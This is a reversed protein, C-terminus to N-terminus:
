HVPPRMGRSPQMSLCRCVCWSACSAWVLCHTFRVVAPDSALYGPGLISGFQEGDNWFRQPARGVLGTVAHMALAFGEGDAAFLRDPCLEDASSVLPRVVKFPSSCGTCNVLKGTYGIFRTCLIRTNADVCEACRADLKTYYLM